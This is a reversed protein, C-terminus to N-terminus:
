GRRREQGAIRSLVEQVSTPVPQAQGLPTGDPLFTADLSIDPPLRVDNDNSLGDLAQSMSSAMIHLRTVLRQRTLNVTPHGAVGERAQDNLELLNAYFGILAFAVWEIRIFGIKGINTKYFLPDQLIPWQSTVPAQPSQVALQNWVSTADILGRSYVILEARFGAEIAAVESNHRNRELNEVSRIQRQVGRWALWAAIIVFFGAFVTACALLLTAFGDPMHWLNCLFTQM